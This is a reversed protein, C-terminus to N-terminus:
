NFLFGYKLAKITLVLYGEQILVTVRQCCAPLTLAIFADYVNVAHVVVFVLAFTHSRLASDVQIM